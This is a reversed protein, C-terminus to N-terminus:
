VTNVICRQFTAATSHRWASERRKGRGSERGASPCTPRRGARRLDSELGEFIFYGQRGSDRLWASRIMRAVVGPYVPHLASTFNTDAM